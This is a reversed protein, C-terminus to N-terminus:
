KAASTTQKPVVYYTCIFDRNCFQEVISPMGMRDRGKKCRLAQEAGKLQSGFKLIGNCAPEVTYGNLSGYGFWSTHTYITYPEGFFTEVAAKCARTENLDKRLTPNYPNSGTCEIGMDHPFTTAAAAFFKEVVQDHESTVINPTAKKADQYCKHLKSDAAYVRYLGTNAENTGGLERKIPMMGVTMGAYKSVERPTAANSETYLQGDIVHVMHDFGGVALHNPTVTNFELQVNQKNCNFSVSFASPTTM